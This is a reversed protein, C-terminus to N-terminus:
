LLSLESGLTLSGLRLTQCYSDSGGSFRAKFALPTQNCSNWLLPPFSIGSKSHACLNGNADPTYQSNHLTYNIFTNLRACPKVWLLYM